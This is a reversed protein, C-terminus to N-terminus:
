KEIRGLPLFNSSLFLDKPSVCSPVVNPLEEGKRHDILETKFLFKRMEYFKDRKDIETFAEIIKNRKNNGYDIEPTYKGLSDAESFCRYVFESCVMPLKGKDLKKFLKQMTKDIKERLEIKENLPLPFDRTLAVFGLLYLHSMAYKEKETIYKEGVALIPDALFGPSGLEKGDKVLRFADLFKEEKFLFDINVKCLEPPYAHMVEGNGAYIASHSYNAEELLMIANSIFGKGHCLVLDGPQLESLHIKNM